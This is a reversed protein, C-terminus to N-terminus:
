SPPNCVETVVAKKPKLLRAIYNRNAAIYDYGSYLTYVAALSVIVTASLTLTEQSMDGNSVPILLMTIAFAALGQVAAKVKGSPRAALAFGRLACITRLTSVVSDRYMFIFVLWISLQIPPQSFALFVSIRSISDAMPDFLKGFDTVQNYRRAFFGDCLDTFESLALLGLLVYPLTHFPIDLWEYNLYIFLFIPSLILRFLTFYNAINM